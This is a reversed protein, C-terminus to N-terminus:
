FVRVALYEGEKSVRGGFEEDNRKFKPVKQPNMQISFVIQRTIVIRISSFSQSLSCLSLSPDLPMKVFGSRASDLQRTVRLSLNVSLRRLVFFVRRWGSTATLRDSRRELTEM